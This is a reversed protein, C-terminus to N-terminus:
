LYVQHQPRTRIEKRLMLAQEFIIERLYITTQLSACFDGTAHELLFQFKWLAWIPRTVSSQVNPSLDKIMKWIRGNTMNTSNDGILVEIDDGGITALTALNQRAIPNFRFTPALISLQIRNM